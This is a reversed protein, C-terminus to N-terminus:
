EKLQFDKENFLHLCANVIVPDYLTGRHQSIEDLAAEIGLSPRYPRHSAMAEVVDAVALIKSELYIDDEKLGLPYGSGNIREHHQHVIQALPWQFQVEKLIDFGTQPHLKIMSFEAESLKGPNSLIEAPVRLKGIDHVLGALYLGVKKNEDMGIEDAIARALQAVRRQHSATYRDKYEVTMAMAQVTDEMNKTMQQHSSLVDDEAKKRGTIDIFSAMACLPKGDPDKIIQASVQVIFTSGDQRSATLEGTWIGKKLLSKRTKHIDVSNQWLETGYKGLIESSNKYGWLNLFSPNVYTLKGHLDALAIANISSTLASDKVMMQQETTVKETIDTAFNLTAPKGQWDIPVANVEIWNIEGEKDVVRFPYIDPVPERNVNKQQLKSAIERDDPHLIEIFPKGTLEEISYKSVKCTKPNAFAIKEDQIVVIAQNANDVVSRYKEESKKLLDTARKRETADEHMGIIHKINGNENMIPFFVSRIYQPKDPLAPQFDHQNYWLEPLKVSEGKKLRAIKKACGNKSLVPHNFISCDEQPLAQFLEHFAQNGRIYYGNGDHVSISYPNLAIINELIAREKALEITREQVRKELEVHATHLADEAYRRQLAVSAQNIFIEIVRTDQLEPAGRLLLATSGFLQGRWSFGAAYVGQIDLLEEIAHCTTKPITNFCLEYIRGPVKNLINNMLAARAVDNIPTTFGVPHRGLFALLTNLHNGLGTISRTTFNSSAEDFSNVFIVSNGALEYLCEGIFRYIDKEPPLEVLDIAAKSLFEMDHIYRKETIKAHKQDTYTNDSVTPITEAFIEKIESHANKM